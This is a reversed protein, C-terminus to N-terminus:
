KKYRDLLMMLFVGFLIFALVEVVEEYDVSQGGLQKRMANSCKKCQLVHHLYNECDTVEVNGKQPPQMQQDSNDKNFQEISVVPVPPVRFHLNDKPNSVTFNEVFQGANEYPSVQLDKQTDKSISGLTLTNASYLPASPDGETSYNPFVSKIYSYSMNHSGARKSYVFM